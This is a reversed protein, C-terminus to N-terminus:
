GPARLRGLIQEVMSVKDSTCRPLRAHCRICSAKEVADGIDRVRRCRTLSLRLRGTRFLRLSGGHGTGAFRSRGTRSTLIPITTRCLLMQDRLRQQFIPMRGRSGGGCTLNPSMTAASRSATISATSRKALRASPYSICFLGTAKGAGAAM